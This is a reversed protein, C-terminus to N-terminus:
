TLETHLFALTRAWSAAAAVGEYSSRREDFFAHGADTYIQVDNRTAIGAFFARVRDVPIGADAAGFSGIVPIDVLAPDTEPVTGYWIAAAAFIDRYGNTRRWAMTGGMCFGAIATKTNPHHERLFAAAARVNPDVTEFTLQKAYPLFTMYDLAGDGNPAGFQAYLDPVLVAFGAAAFREATERLQGDLGWLHMMLVISPTSPRANLPLAYYAPVSRGDTGALDIWRASM